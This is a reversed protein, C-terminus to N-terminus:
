RSSAVFHHIYNRPGCMRFMAGPPAEIRRRIRDLAARAQAPTRHRIEAWCTTWRPSGPARFQLIYLM